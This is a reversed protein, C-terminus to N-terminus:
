ANDYIKPWDVEKLKAEATIARGRWDIAANTCSRAQRADCHGPWKAIVSDRWARMTMNDPANDWETSWADAPIRPLNCRECIDTM